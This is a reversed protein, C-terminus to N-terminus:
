ALAYQANNPAVKGEAFIMKYRPDKLTLDERLAVHLAGYTQTFINLGSQVSDGDYLGVLQMKHIHDVWKSLPLERIIDAQDKLLRQNSNKSIEEVLQLYQEFTVKAQIPYEKLSDFM